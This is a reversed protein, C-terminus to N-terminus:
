YMYNPNTSETMISEVIIFVSRKRKENKKSLQTDELTHSCM